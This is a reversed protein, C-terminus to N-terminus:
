NKRLWEAVRGPSHGYMSWAEVESIVAGADASTARVFTKTQGNNEHPLIYLRM